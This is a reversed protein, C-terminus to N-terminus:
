KLGAVGRATSDAGETPASAPAAKPAAPTMAANLYDIKAAARLRALEDEAVKKSQQNMLFQRIQPEAQALTVPADKIEAVQSLVSREGERVIFLQGPKMELLRASLEKPLDTSSRIAQGRTYKVGNADLWTAVQDLSTSKDIIAKAQDNLDSTALLVQRMDFQKRQIFFQPNKDFYENVQAATPTAPTGARKQLYSQAIILAKAREIAQVVKPDRELKEKSAANLLLQRDVLSSLLQKSAAEQQASQVGARMLEENLQSVTIEEGDVRALAQGSKPSSKDGCATLAVAALLTLMLRGAYVTMNKQVINM